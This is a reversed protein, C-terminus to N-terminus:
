HCETVTSTINQHLCDKSTQFLNEETKEKSSMNESAIFIKTSLM